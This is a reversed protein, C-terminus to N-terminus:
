LEYQRRFVAFSMAQIVPTLDYFRFFLLCVNTKKPEFNSLALPWKTLGRKSSSIGGWFIYVFTQRQRRLLKKDRDTVIYLPQTLYTLHENRITNILASSRHRAVIPAM